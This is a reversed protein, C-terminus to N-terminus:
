ETREGGELYLWCAVNHGPAMEIYAPKERRCIEMCSRCRPAFPCGSIVAYPDPLVGPIFALEETDLSPISDLLGKTYPSLPTKYIQQATGEEMLCGAYMVVVRNCLEAVVALNHSIFLISMGTKGQIDRLLDLIQAQITVDLATTPEDAILVDPECILAMAIMVRQCMGGSLEHPYRRMYEKGNRFGVLSLLEEARVKAEAKTKGHCTGAEVLQVGISYAPHLSSMPNQFIMSIRRGRLSRLNTESCRLLDKKEFLAAGEKVRGPYGLLGLISYAQVSKGSGSEGVIGLSEGPYLSYSLGNVAHLEKEKMFFSVTLDKVELVPKQKLM